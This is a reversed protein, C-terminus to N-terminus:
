SMLCRFRFVFFGLIIAIPIFPPFSCCNNLWLEPTWAWMSKLPRSQIYDKMVHAFACSCAFCFPPLFPLLLFFTKMVLFVRVCQRLDCCTILKPACECVRTCKFNSIMLDFYCSLLVITAAVALAVAMAAVTNAIACFLEWVCVCVGACVTAWFLLVSFLLRPFINVYLM